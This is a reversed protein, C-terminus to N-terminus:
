FNKQPNKLGGKLRISVPEFRKAGGGGGGSIIAGAPRAAM